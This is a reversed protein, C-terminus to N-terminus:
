DESQRCTRRSRQGPDSRDRMTALRRAHRLRVCSVVCLPRPAWKTLLSRAAPPSKHIYQSTPNPNRKEGGMWHTGSGQPITAVQTAPFAKTCRSLRRSSRLAIFAASASLSNRLTADPAHVWSKSGEGSKKQNKNKNACGRDSSGCSLRTPTQDNHSNRVKSPVYNEIKLDVASRDGINHLSSTVIVSHRRATM